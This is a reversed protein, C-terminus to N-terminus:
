KAWKFKMVNQTTYHQTSSTSIEEWAVRLLLENWCQILHLCLYFKAIPFRHCANLPSNSFNNSCWILNAFIEFGSFYSYKEGASLKLDELTSLDFKLWISNNIVSLVKRSISIMAVDKFDKTFVHSSPHGCHLSAESCKCIIM